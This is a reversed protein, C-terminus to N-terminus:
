ARTIMVFDRVPIMTQAPIEPSGELVAATQKLAMAKMALAVMLVLPIGVSSCVGMMTQVPIEQSDLLVTAAPIVEMARWVSVM